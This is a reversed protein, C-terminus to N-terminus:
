GQVRGRPMSGLILEHKNLKQLLGANSAITAKMNLDVEDKLESVAAKASKATETARSLDEAMTELAGVRDEMDDMYDQNDAASTILGLRILYTASIIFSAGLVLLGIELM